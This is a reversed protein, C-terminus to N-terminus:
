ARTPMGQSILYKEIHRIEIGQDSQVAKLTKIDARMEPILAVQPKMEKVDQAMVGTVEILLQLKDQINELLVDIHNDAM